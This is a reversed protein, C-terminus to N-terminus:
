HRKRLARWTKDIDPKEGRLWADAAEDLLENTLDGRALVQIDGYQHPKWDLPLFVNRDERLYEGLYWDLFDLSHDLAESDSMAPYQSREITAEMRYVATRDERKLILAVVLEEGAQGGQGAQSVELELIEDRLAARHREVLLDLIKRKEVAAIMAKAM